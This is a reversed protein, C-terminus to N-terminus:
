AQDHCYKEAALLGCYLSDMSESISYTVLEPRNRAKGETYSNPEVSLHYVHQEEMQFQRILPGYGFSRGEEMRQREGKIRKEKVMDISITPCVETHTYAYCQM